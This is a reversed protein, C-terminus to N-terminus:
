ILLILFGVIYQKMNKYIYKYVCVCVCVGWNIQTFYGTFFHLKYLAKTKFNYKLLDIQKQAPSIEKAEKIGPSLSPSVGQTVNFTSQDM